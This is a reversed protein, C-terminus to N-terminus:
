FSIWNTSLHTRNLSDFSPCIGSVRYDRLFFWQMHIVIKIVIEAIIVVMNQWCPLTVKFLSNHMFYSLLIVLSKRFVYRSTNLTYFYLPFQVPGASLHSRVVITQWYSWHSIFDSTINGHFLLVTFYILIYHIELNLFEIYM